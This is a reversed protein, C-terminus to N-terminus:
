PATSPTTSGNPRLAGLEVLDQNALYRGTFTTPQDILWAVAEGYPEPLAMRKAMEDVQDRGM